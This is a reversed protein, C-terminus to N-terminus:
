ADAMIRVFFFFSVNIAMPISGSGISLRNERNEKFLSSKISTVGSTMLPLNLNLKFHEFELLFRRGIEVEPWDCELETEENVLEGSEKPFLDFLNSVQKQGQNYRDGLLDEESENLYKALDM